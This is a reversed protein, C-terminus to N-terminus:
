HCKHQNDCILGKHMTDNHQTNNHRTGHSWYDQNLSGSAFDSLRGEYGIVICDVSLSTWWISISTYTLEESKNVKKALNFTPATLKGRPSTMKAWSAQEEFSM